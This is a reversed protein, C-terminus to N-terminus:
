ISFQIGLLNQIINSGTIKLVVYCMTGLAIPIAYRLIPRNEDKGPPIAIFQATLFLTKFTMGIRRLRSRAYDLHIILLVLAYVLGLLISFVGALIVGKVGVIAGVAGMLKADGAGTSGMLYPILLIGIGLFLGGASFGLGNLGTILGHYTLGLLMMPFTVLNPIKGTRFDQVAAILLGFLLLVIPFIEM